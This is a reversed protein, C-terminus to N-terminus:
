KLVGEKQNIIQDAIEEPTLNDTNIVRCSVEKPLKSFEELYSKQQNISNMANFSVQEFQPKDGRKLREKLVNESATLLIFEVSYHDTLRKIQRTLEETETAFSHTKFGLNAYVKECLYSRDFVFNMGTEASLKATQLTAFHYNFAAQNPTLQEAPVGALRMLTTHLMKERLLNTVTSKGCGQGGHVFILRSQNM